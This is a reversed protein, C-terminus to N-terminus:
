EKRDLRKGLVVKFPNAGPVPNGDDDKIVDEIRCFEVPIGGEPIKPLTVTKLPEGTEEDMGLNVVAGEQEDDCDLLRIMSKLTNSSLHFRNYKETDFGDSLKSKERDFKLIAFNPAESTPLFADTIHAHWVKEVGLDRNGIKEGDDAEFISERYEEYEKQIREIFKDPAEWKKSFEDVVEGYIQKFGNDMGEPPDGEHVVFQVNVGEEPIKPVSVEITKKEVFGALLKPYDENDPIDRLVRERLTRMTGATTYITNADGKYGEEVPGEFTYGIWDKYKDSRKGYANLLKMRYLKGVELQLKVPDPGADFNQKNEEYEQKLKKIFDEDSM